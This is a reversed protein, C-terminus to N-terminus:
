IVIVPKPNMNLLGPESITIEIKDIFPIPVPTKLM